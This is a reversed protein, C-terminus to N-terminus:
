TWAPFSEWVPPPNPHPKNTSSTSPTFLHFSPPSSGPFAYPLSLLHSTSLTHLHAFSLVPLRSAPILRISWEFRPYGTKNKGEHNLFSRKYTHNIIVDKCKKPCIHPCQHLGKFESLRIRYNSQYPLPCPSKHMFIM